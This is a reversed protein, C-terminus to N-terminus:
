VFNNLEAVGPHRSAKVSLKDFRYAAIWAIGYTVLVIDYFLMTVLTLLGLRRCVVLTLM